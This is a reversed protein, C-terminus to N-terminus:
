GQPNIRVGFFGGDYPTPQGADRPAADPNIRVGVFGGDYPKPWGADPNTRLGVAGGDYPTPPAADRPLPGVGVVGGDYPRPRSADVPLGCIGLCGGDYPRTGMVAGDYTQATADPPTGPTLSAGCGALGAGLGSALALARACMLYKPM